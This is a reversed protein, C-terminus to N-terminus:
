RLLQATEEATLRPIEITRFGLEEAAEGSRTAIVIRALPFRKRFDRIANCAAEHRPAEDFGDVLCLVRGQRLAKQLYRESVRAYRNVSRLTLKELDHRHWFHLTMLVPLPAKRPRESVDAAAMLALHHLLTTKGAGGGGMVVVGEASEELVEEEVTGRDLYPRITSVAVSESLVNAYTLFQRAQRSVVFLVRRAVGEGVRGLATLDSSRLRREVIILIAVAGILETAMNLSLSSLNANTTTFGLVVLLIALAVLAGYVLLSPPEAVPSPPPQAPPQPPLAEPM